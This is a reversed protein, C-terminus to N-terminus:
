DDDSELDLNAFEELCTTSIADRPDDERALKPKGRPKEWAADKPFQEGFRKKGLRKEAEAVSLVKRNWPDIGAAELKGAIAEENETWKRNSRGEVLKFGEIPTGAVLQSVAYHEVAKVWSKISDLAPLINKLEAASILAGEIRTTASVAVATIDLNEEDDLNTFEMGAIVSVASRARVACTARIPCFRCWEGPQFRTGEEIERVVKPLTANAWALLEEKTLTEEDFHDLRPQAIRLRFREFDYLYGLNLLVGLAYLRNQTNGKAFVQVGKGHKFDTITVTSALRADDLTGFGGPVFEEYSVRLEYHPDGEVEACYDIFAQVSDIFEQDVEFEYSGVRIIWGRYKKARVGERRCIESLTHGATGEATFVTDKNSKGRSAKVSAPCEIWRKSSSPGVPSHTGGTVVIEKM